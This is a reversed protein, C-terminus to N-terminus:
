KWAAQEADWRQGKLAAAVGRVLGDDSTYGNEGEDDITADAFSLHPGSTEDRTTTVPVGLWIMLREANGPKEPGALVSLGVFDFEGEQGVRNDQELDPSECAAGPVTM